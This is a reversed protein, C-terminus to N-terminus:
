RSHTKYFLYIRKTQREVVSPCYDGQQQGRGRLVGVGKKEM